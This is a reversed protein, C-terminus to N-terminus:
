KGKLEVRLQKEFVADDYPMEGCRPCALRGDHVYVQLYKKDKDLLRGNGALEFTGETGYFRLKFRGCLPCLM